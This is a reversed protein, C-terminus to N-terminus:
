NGPPVGNQDWGRLRYYDDLMTDLEQRTIIDRGDNIPENFFRAPLMDDARTAGERTNFLRTATVIRDALRALEERTYEWGTAGKIMAVLDDWHILDRFFVCFIMTNFVTLRNEFEIFLAAKGETTSPDIMGSLEPKYFTARLHCAGRPSTAYALGMGKLVRPDYGAPELGKVHIALDELGLETAVRKIGQALLEGPGRAHAIDELLRAAGEADGYAPYGKVRGREGAEMMLAVLNGATITDMGLRDCLDNLYIVEDLRNIGCLGGFAYITEYEPGELKLGAYKGEKITTLKGCTLFCNPCARARVEFNQLLKDGSLNEWNPDTGMSWYRAPFAMAGNMTGVMVTTGYTQYAKVGPNDRGKERIRRAAEQLLAPDAAECRAEGHFVLAKLKKSGMVAGMGTRGASRWYNNEICAFRVLNEGAPGIVVAQAGKQGVEALVADETAYTDKGWLHSADRFVVGRDSIEVYVPADSAGEVIVADYGTRRIAPAVRGGAYSEAYLGTLPSKSFVGYRSSGPLLTGTAPGATIILKNAPSLPDIGPEVDRLLLYTGLGKGGLYDRYVSEPLEEVAFSRDSLNLRLLRGYFGYM